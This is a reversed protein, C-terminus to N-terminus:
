AATCHSRAGDKPTRRVLLWSTDTRTPSALSRATAPRHLTPPVGSLSEYHVDDSDRAPAPGRAHGRGRPLGGVRVEERSGLMGHCYNVIPCARDLCSRPIHVTFPVTANGQYVPTNDAGIVLVSGPLADNTMYHPVTM